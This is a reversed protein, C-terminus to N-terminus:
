EQSEPEPSSTTGWFNGLTEKIDAAIEARFEKAYRRATEPADVEMADGLHEKARSIKGQASRLLETPIEVLQDLLVSVKEWQPILESHEELFTRFSASIQDAETDWETALEVADRKLAGLMDWATALIKKAGLKDGIQNTFELLEDGLETILKQTEAISDIGEELMEGAANLDEQLPEVRERLETGLLRVPVDWAANKVLYAGTGLSAVLGVVAVIKRQSAHLWARVADLQSEVTVPTEEQSRPAPSESM